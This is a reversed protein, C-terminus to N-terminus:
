RLAKGLWALYEKSGRTIPLAIVEPLEYPHIERIAKSVKAFRHSLTKIWVVTEKSRTLKGKWSYTSIFGSQFSVCAALKKTVLSKAIKEASRLDPTATLIILGQM